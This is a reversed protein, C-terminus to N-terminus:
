SYIKELLARYSRTLEERDRGLDFIRKRDPTVYFGDGNKRIELSSACFVMGALTIKRKTGWKLILGEEEYRIEFGEIGLRDAERTDYSRPFRLGLTVNALHEALLERVCSPIAPDNM